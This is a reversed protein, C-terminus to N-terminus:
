VDVLNGSGADVQQVPAVPLATAPSAAFGFGILGLAAALSLVTKKM